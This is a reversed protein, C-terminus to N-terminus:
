IEDEEEEEEEGGERKGERLADLLTALPYRRNIPMLWNRTEDDSANLSVALQAKSTKLFDSIM